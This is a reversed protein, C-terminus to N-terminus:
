EISSQFLFWSLPFEQLLTSGNFSIIEISSFHRESYDCCIFCKDDDFKIPHIEDKGVNIRIRKRKLKMELSYLALTDVVKMRTIKTEKSCFYCELITLSRWCNIKNTKPNKSLSKWAWNPKTIRKTTTFYFFSKRILIKKLQLNQNTQLNPNLDHRVRM